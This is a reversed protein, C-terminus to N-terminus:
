ARSPWPALGSFETARLARQRTLASRSSGVSLRARTPARPSVQRKPPPSTTRRRRLNGSVVRLLAGPRMLATPPDLLGTVRVFQRVLARDRTAAAHLAGIYGNTMRVPLPLKATASTLALDGGNALQWARNVPKAAARFFRRALQAEGGAPSDRLAVAELAAVSM